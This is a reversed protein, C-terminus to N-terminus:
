EVPYMVWTHIKWSKDKQRKWAMIMNYKMRITDKIQQSWIKSNTFSIHYAMDGDTMLSHTQWKVDAKLQQQQFAGVEAKELSDLQKKGTVHAPASGYRIFTANSDFVAATQRWNYQLAGSVHSALEKEISEKVINISPGTASTNQDKVGTKNQNCSNVTVMAGFFLLKKM